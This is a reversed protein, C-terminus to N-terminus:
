RTQEDTASYSCRGDRTSPERSSTRPRIRGPLTLGDNLDGPEGPEGPEETGDAADPGGRDTDMGNM